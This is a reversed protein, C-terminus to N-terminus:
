AFHKELLDRIEDAMKTGRKACAVKIRAHLDLTVDITLRKMPVIAPQISLAPAAVAPEEQLAVQTGSVWAEPTPASPTSPKPTFSIKKNM